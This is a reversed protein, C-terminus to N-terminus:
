RANEAALGSASQGLTTRTGSVLGACLGWTYAAHQVLLATPLALRVRLPPRGPHGFLALALYAVTAPLLAYLPPILLLPAIVLALASLCFTAPLAFVIRRSRRDGNRIFCGRSRGLNTIQRAHQPWLPRRYHFVALNPDYHILGGKDAMRACLSTDEGGYWNTAWGGVADLWEKRVFLDYAPFDACDRAADRWFRFRLPGSGARMEMAAASVQESYEQDDSMLGPGGAGAAHPHAALIRAAEDLWTPPPYADDDLYAYVDTNACRRSALDRKTAPGTVSSAGTVINIFHPDNPM